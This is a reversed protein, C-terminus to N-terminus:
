LHSMRLLKSVVFPFDIYETNNHCEATLLLRKREDVRDDSYQYFPNM